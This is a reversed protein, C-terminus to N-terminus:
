KSKKVKVPNVGIIKIGFDKFATVKKLNNTAMRFTHNAFGLAKLIIASEEYTRLDILMEKEHFLKEAKKWHMNLEHFLRECTLRAHQHGRGDHAPIHVIIGGKDKLCLKQAMELQNKCDCITDGFVMGPYCGSDLRLIIKDKELLTELDPYVLIYHWGWRGFLVKAPIVQFRGFSATVFGSALFLVMYKKGNFVVPVFQREKAEKKMREIFEEKTERPSYNKSPIYTKM